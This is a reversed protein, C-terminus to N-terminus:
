RRCTKEATTMIIRWLSGKRRRKLKLERRRSAVGGHTRVNKVIPLTAPSARMEAKAPSDVPVVAGPDPAFVANDALRTDASAGGVIPNLGGHGLPAAGHRPLQGGCGDEPSELRPIYSSSREKLAHSAYRIIGCLGQKVGLPTHAVSPRMALKACSGESWDPEDWLAPFSAGVYYCTHVGEGNDALRCSCIKKLQFPCRMWENWRRIPREASHEGRSRGDSGTPSRPTIVLLVHPGQSCARNALRQVVSHVSEKGFELVPVEIALLDANLWDESPSKM